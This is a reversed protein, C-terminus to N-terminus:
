EKKKLVIKKPQKELSNTASSSFNINSIKKKVIENTEPVYTMNIPNMTSEKRYGNRCSYLFM